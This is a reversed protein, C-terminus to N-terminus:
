IQFVASDNYEIIFATPSDSSFLAAWQHPDYTRKVFCGYHAPVAFKLNLKEAVKLAGDFYPFEGEVPHQTLLGIDPKLRIIHELFDDHQAVTNFLDGSVYIRASGIEVVFGLHEVDPVPINDEPVGQPPKAWVTHVSIDGLNETRDAVVTKLVSEPFNAKRLRQISEHPGYFQTTPFANRIRLLSEVCTHDGHDHTLLVYNVKLTEEDLPSESHIFKEPPRESPFYPDILLITGKADKFAFSSQGFWHIGVAGQPIQLQEFPHGPTEMSTKDDNM